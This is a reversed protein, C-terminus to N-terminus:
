FFFGACLNWARLKALEEDNASYSLSFRGLCEYNLSIKLGYNSALSYKLGIGTSFYGGKFDYIENGELENKFSGGFDFRLFPNARSRAIYIENSCYVPIIQVYFDGVDKSDDLIHYEWGINTGIGIFYHDSLLFGIRPRVRLGLDGLYYDPNTTYSIQLSLSLDAQFGKEKTFFKLINENQLQEYAVQRNLTLIGLSADPEVKTLKVTGVLEEGMRIKEGTISSSDFAPTYVDYKKDIGPKGGKAKTESGKDIIAIPNGNEEKIDIIHVEKNPRAKKEKQTYITESYNRERPNEFEAQVPRKNEVVEQEASVVKVLTNGVALEGKKEIIEAVSSLEKVEIVKVKGLYVNDREVLKGTAPHIVQGKGFVQFVDGAKVEFQAGLNIEVRGAGIITTIKHEAGDQASLITATLIIQIFVIFRKM